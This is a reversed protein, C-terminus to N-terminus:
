KPTMRLIFVLPQCHLLSTHTPLLPIALVYTRKRGYTECLLTRLVGFSTPLANSRGEEETSHSEPSLHSLAPDLAMLRPWQLSAAKSKAARRPWRRLPLHAPRAEDYSSKDAIDCPFSSHFPCAPELHRRFCPRCLPAGSGSPRFAASPLAPCPLSAAISHCSRTEM